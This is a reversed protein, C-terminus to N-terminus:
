TRQGDAMMVKFRTTAGNDLKQKHEMKIEVYTEDENGLRGVHGGTEGAPSMGPGIDAQSSRSSGNTSLGSRAYAHLEFGDGFSKQKALAATREEVQRTKQETQVTRHTLQQAQKEAAEARAEATAARQEAQQLRQELANLRAEISDTGAAYTLPSALLFGIITALYHRKMM